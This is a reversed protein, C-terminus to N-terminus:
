DSIKRAAAGRLCLTGVPCYHRLVTASFDGLAGSKWHLARPQLVAACSLANRYLTDPDLQITSHRLKNHWLLLTSFPKIAFDCSM